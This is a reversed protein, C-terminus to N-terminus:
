PARRPRAASGAPAGRSHAPGPRTGASAARVSLAACSRRGSGCAPVAPRARTSPPARRTGRGPPTPRRARGTTPTGASSGTTAPGACPGAPRRQRRVGRQRRGAASRAPSTSATTAASTAPRVGLPGPAPPRSDPRGPSHQHRQQQVVTRSAGPATSRSAPRRRAVRLQAGAEGRLRARDRSRGPQSRNAGAPAAARRGAGRGDVLALQWMWPAWSSGWPSRRETGAPRDTRSRHRPRRLVGRHASERGHAGRIPGPRRVAARAGDTPTARGGSSAPRARGDVAVPRLIAAGLRAVAREHGALAATIATGATVAARPTPDSRGPSAPPGPRPPGGGTASRRTCFCCPSIAGLPLAVGLGAIVGHLLATAPASTVDRNHGM